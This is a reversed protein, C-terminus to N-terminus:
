SDNFTMRFNILSAALYRFGLGMEELKDSRIVLKRYTEQWGFPREVKYREKDAERDFWRFLRAIGIPEKDSLYCPSRRAGPYHNEQSDSDLAM